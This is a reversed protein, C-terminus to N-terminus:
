FFIDICKELTIESCVQVFRDIEEKTNYFYLSARITDSTKLIDVLM